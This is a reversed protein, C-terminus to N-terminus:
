GNDRKDRRSEIRQAGIRLIFPISVLGGIAPLSSAGVSVWFLVSEASTWAGGTPPRLYYFVFIFMIGPIFAVAFKGVAAMGRLYVRGSRRIKFDEWRLVLYKPRDENGILGQIKPVLNFQIYKGLDNIQLSAELFAWGIASMLLSAVLYLVPLQEAISPQGLAFLSATGATIAIAYNVLQHQFGIQLNIEDRMAEFETLHARFARETDNDKAELM